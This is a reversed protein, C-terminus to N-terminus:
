RARRQVIASVTGMHVVSFFITNGSFLLLRDGPKFGAKRLGAAFRKCWERYTSLTLHCEPKEGEVILPKKDDLKGSPSQFLYTPLSCM